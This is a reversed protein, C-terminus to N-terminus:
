RAVNIRVWDQIDVVMHGSVKAADRVEQQTCNFYKAWTRIDSSRYVSGPPRKVRARRRIDAQM